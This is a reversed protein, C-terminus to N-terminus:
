KRRTPVLAKLEEFWNSIVKIQSPSSASQIQEVVLFRGDPSVNWDAVFFEARSHDFLKTPPGAPIGNEVRRAMVATPGQYFLEGGKPNWAPALGGDISVQRRPGTGPYAQLYVELGGSFNSQYAIHRGDPSFVANGEWKPTSLWSRAPRDASWEWVDMGTSENLRNILLINGLRSWSTPAQPRPNDILREPKGMGDAPTSFINYRGGQGSRFCVRSGDLTFVPGGDDNGFTLQTLPEGDVSGSWLNCKSGEQVQVVLRRGDPSLAPRTIAYSRPKLTLPATNGNRDKWVLKALDTSAPVYALTGGVSVDYGASYPSEQQIGEVVVMPAGKRELREPDFAVALLHGGSVYILHGTTPLYHARSGSDIIPRVEGTRPLVAAISVNGEREITFLVAGGPLMGPWSYFVNTDESIQTLPIPDGGDAPVSWIGANPWRAFVIRGDQGWKGGHVQGPAENATSKYIPLPPGGRVPVKEMGKGMVYYAIWEGDFSFFPCVARETGKLPRPEWENVRRVYLRPEDAGRAAFVLTQGDPAIAMGGETLTLGTASIPITMRAVHPNDPRPAFARWLLVGVAAGLLLGAALILGASSRRPPSGMEVPEAPQKLADEIEIRADLIDHMRHQPNKNLCRELLKRVPQPTMLPLSEWDPERSLISVITDSVTEGPFARRGTLCEFLICGFAWIDARRDVAKGKAQEPSMYAATGLIVGPHTEADTITPSHAPDVPHTESALAKALGYDLVKVKEEPTINVNAPKLDRHVIGKEHAAAVGEAIQRCIELAEEVPLPGKAIRQALTEGEVLELVLFRKGGAEELGHIAAINPHNLSALMRAEREFRALREPDAAFAPPLCKLAVTRKLKTDEARYVVGMGGHGIEEVVRYHAITQGAELTARAKAQDQALVKAAVNMAPSEIFRDIRSQDALLAAVEKRLAEDGACADRLFAEREGPERKQGLQYLREIERWREPTMGKAM